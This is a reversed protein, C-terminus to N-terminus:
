LCRSHFLLDELYPFSVEQSISERRNKSDKELLFTLAKILRTLTLELVM